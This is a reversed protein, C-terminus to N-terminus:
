TLEATAPSGQLLRWSRTDAWISSSSVYPRLLATLEADGRNNLEESAIKRAVGALFDAVQVRADSRSDVLTLGALRIIQSLQAIRDQSLTTQQDHIIAVRNQGNSWHAVTHVIAPILPDLPPILRPYNDLLHARVADAHPKARHILDLIEHVQGRPGTARLTDLQTYFASSPVEHRIKIRMLNNFSRLFMEWSSHGFTTPGDHYLVRALDINEETLLEVMKTLAFFTKEILHVHANGHIPGSPGLLWVLTPRHKERLLHNAKYELAPSRIRERLEEVCSNAAELTLRASAHAFVDTVGGILNEGESGSEDCAIELVQSSLAPETPGHDEHDGPVPPNKRPPRATLIYGRNINTWPNQGPM